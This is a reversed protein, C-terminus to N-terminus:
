PFLDYYSKSLRMFLLHVVRRGEIALNESDSRLVLVKVKILKGQWALSTGCEKMGEMTRGM